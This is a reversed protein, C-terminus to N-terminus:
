HVMANSLPLDGGFVPIGWSSTSGGGISQFIANHFNAISQGSVMVPHDVTAGAADLQGARAAVLAERLAEMKKAILAPDAACTQGPPLHDSILSALRYNTVGSLMGVNNEPTALFVFALM